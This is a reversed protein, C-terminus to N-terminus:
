IASNQYSLLASKIMKELGPVGDMQNLESLSVWAHESHESPDVELTSEDACRALYIVGHQENEYLKACEQLKTVSLNVEEMVEREAAIEPSEGDEIGGGALAWKGPMWQDDDARKLLLIQKASSVIIVLAFTPQRSVEDEYLEMRQPKPIKIDSIKMVSPKIFTKEHSKIFQNSFGANSRVTKKNHVEQRESRLNSNIFDLMLKGGCLAYTPTGVHKGQDLYSKIKKANQYTLVPNQLLSQAREHGSATPYRRLALRIDHLVIDTVTFTQDSNYLASNAM